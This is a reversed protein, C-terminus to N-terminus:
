KKGLAYTPVQAQPPEAAQAGATVLPALLLLLLIARARVTPAERPTDAM